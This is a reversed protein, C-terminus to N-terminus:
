SSSTSFRTCRSNSARLSAACTNPAITRMLSSAASGGHGPACYTSCWWSMRLIRNSPYTGPAPQAPAHTPHLCHEGRKDTHVQPTGDRCLQCPRPHRWAHMLCRTTPLSAPTTFALMTVTLAAAPTPHQRLQPVTLLLLLLSHPRGAHHLSSIVLLQRQKPTCAHQTTHAPVINRGNREVTAAHVPVADPVLCKCPACGSAGDLM